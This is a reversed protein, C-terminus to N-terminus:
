DRRVHDEAAPTTPVDHNGSTQHSSRFHTTSENVFAGLDTPRQKLSQFLSFSIISRVCEDFFIGIRTRCGNKQHLLERKRITGEHLQLGEM